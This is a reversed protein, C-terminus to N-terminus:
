FTYSWCYCCCFLLWLLISSSPCSSFSFYVIFFVGFFEVYKLRYIYLTCLLEVQSVRFLKTSGTWSKTYMQWNSYQLPSCFFFCCGTTCDVSVLSLLWWRMAYECVCALTTTYYTTRIPSLLFTLSLLLESAFFFHFRIRIDTVTQLVTFFSVRLLLQVETTLKKNQLSYM